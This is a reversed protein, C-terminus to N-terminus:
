NTNIQTIQPHNNYFVPDRIAARSSVTHYDPSSTEPCTVPVKGGNWWEVKEGKWMIGVVMEM